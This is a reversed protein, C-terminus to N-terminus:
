RAFSDMGHGLPYLGPLDVPLHGAPQALGFLVRAAADLSVPVDAYAALYCPADPFTMLDYPSRLAVVVMARDALAHVLSAQSTHRRSEATAVVVADFGEAQRVAAAIEDGSPDLDVLMQQLNPHYAQMASGLDGLGMPAVVLVLAEAALPLVAREDRVLTVAAGAIERARALNAETGVTEALAARDVPQWDLLGRRAKLMLIRRVSDHLRSEPLSGSTFLALVAAYAQLQAEEPQGADAGFALIDCGARFAMAAIEAITYRRTLAGMGLSDSITVGGFGMEERLLWQLVKESLTAPMGETPEIAPLEVHATMIADVGAAIANRFPLLEVADLHSRDHQVVPLGVHSDIATDGHGPFHKATAIVGAEQYAHIMAVGLEAVKEPSSGFSRIGIVPNDPNSNVDLVPALNFNVGLAKLESATVAAMQRAMEASGTAGVAMNGPFVTAGDSIRVVLGGEQDVAVFLPVGGSGTAVRQADDLMAAVQGIGAINGAIAFLVIGGVHYREIMERLFPSVEAGAFHVMFLQGVKQELSMGALLDDVRRDLDGGAPAPSIAPPVTPTGTIESSATPAATPEVTAQELPEPSPVLSNAVFALHQWFSFEVAVQELPEPSPVPLGCGVLVTAMGALLLRRRSMLHKM